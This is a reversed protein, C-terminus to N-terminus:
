LGRSITAATPWTLAASAVAKFKERNLFASRKQVSTQPWPGLQLNEPPSTGTGMSALMNIQGERLNGWKKYSKSKLPTTM